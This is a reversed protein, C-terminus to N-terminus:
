IEIKLEKNYGLVGVVIDESIKEIVDQDIVYTSIIEVVKMALNLAATKDLLMGTSSELRHCTSVIKEIRTVLDAIKSSYILLTASDTCINMIEELTIRLIGIEERLSKVKDHDAIQNIRGQWKSLRYLRTENEERNMDSRAKHMGCLSIGEEARFPCQGNAVLAQCRRPDAPNTVKILKHEIAM